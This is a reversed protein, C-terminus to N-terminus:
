QRIRGPPNKRKHDPKNEPISNLLRAYDLKYGAPLPSCRSSAWDYTALCLAEKLNGRILNIFGAQIRRKLSLGKTTQSEAAGGGRRILELAALAQNDESFSKLGLLPAIRKWNSFTLQYYGSATSSMWKGNVRIRYRCRKPLTLAPHQRLTPARCGGVMINREGGEAKRIVALFRKVDRRALMEQLNARMQPGNVNSLHKDLAYRRILDARPVRTHRNRNVANRRTRAKSFVM